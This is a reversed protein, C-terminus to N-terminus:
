EPWEGEFVEAAPGTMRVHGSAEDWAAELDGGPLHLAVRRSLRGTRVGAVVVACAGTGCARTAGAGREWTRMTAEGPGQVAAFHANIRRPFAPHNEIMPGVRALDLGRLAAVSLPRRDGGVTEDFVVAHPNGMSVFSARYTVGGADVEYEHEVGTRRVASGDVPVRAIDLIPEGMDVTAHTLVGREAAYRISLVGRGTEIRMPNADVGLRDHAFKAVCRVGNGCMESESGDANFMRMRVHGPGAGIPGGGRPRCVLILGDSGVGTHRDSMRRALEALDTREEIVPNTVADVYVYDNGIGHMKVFKM